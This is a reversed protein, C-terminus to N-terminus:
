IRIHFTNLFEPARSIVHEFEIFSLMEDDDLDTEELVKNVVFTVEDKTLSDQTLSKLTKELDFKGLFNDNDYDYIKFAYASKIDRPAAESFVSFMDLFDEFAMDGTGDDSFVQCIRRRFPNEKLEPMEELKDLPIKLRSGEDSTMDYPIMDPALERFRQFVRLIDKRTFYTCDQYAELQVETFTTVKNGM